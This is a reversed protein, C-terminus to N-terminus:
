ESVLVPRLCSSCCSDRHCRVVPMMSRKKLIGLSACHALGVTVEVVLNGCMQGFRDIVVHSATEIRFRRPQGRQAVKAADCLDLLHM